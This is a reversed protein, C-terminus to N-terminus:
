GIKGFIERCNLGCKIKGYAEICRHAPHQACRLKGYAEVCGYGCAQKGYADICDKKPAAVQASPGTYIAIGGAGATYGERYGRQVEPSDLQDCSYSLGAANMRKGQRAENMGHQYAGDYNCTQHRWQQMMGACGTAIMLACLSLTTKTNSM